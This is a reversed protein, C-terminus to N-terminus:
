EAQKARGLLGAVYNKRESPTMKGPDPTETVAVGGKGGGLVVPAPRNADTKIKNVLAHYSKVADEGSAGAAMQTLVYERDYAGLTDELGKLHNELAQDNAANEAQSRENQILQVVQQLQSELQAIRTEGPDAYPDDVVEEVQGTQTNFEFHTGMQDYVSRPDEQIQQLLSIGARIMDPDVTGDVFEQYPEYAKRSAAAEEFRKAVGQDWEKLKPEVLPRLQAPLVDLIPQWAPNTKVEAPTSEAVAGNDEPAGTIPGTPLTAQATGEPAAAPAEDSM